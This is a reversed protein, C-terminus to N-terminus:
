HKPHARDDILEAMLRIVFDPVEVVFQHTTGPPTVVRRANSPAALYRERSMAFFRVMRRGDDNAAAAIELEAVVESADGPALM